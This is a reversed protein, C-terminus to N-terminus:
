YNLLSTRQYSYNRLCSEPSVCHWSKYASVLTVTTFTLVLGGTHINAGMVEHLEVLITRFCTVRHTGEILFGLLAPFTIGTDLNTRLVRNFRTVVGIDNRQATGDLRQATRVGDQPSDLEAISGHLTEFEGNTGSRFAGNIWIAALGHGLQCINGLVTEEGLFATEAGAIGSLQDTLLFPSARSSVNM